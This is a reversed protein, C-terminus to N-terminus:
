LFRSSEVGIVKIQQFKFLESMYHFSPLFFGYEQM